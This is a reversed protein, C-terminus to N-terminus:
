TGVECFPWASKFLEEATPLSNNSHTQGNQPTSAEFTLWWSISVTSETVVSGVCTLKCAFILHIWHPLLDVFNKKIADLSVETLLFRCTSFIIVLTNLLSYVLIIFLVIFTQLGIVVCTRNYVLKLVSVILKNFWASFLWDGCIFM